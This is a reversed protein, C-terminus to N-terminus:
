GRAIFLQSHWIIDFWRAHLRPTAAGWNEFLYVRRAPCLVNRLVPFANLKLTPSLKWRRGVLCSELLFYLAGWNRKLCWVRRSSQTAHFRRPLPLQYIYIYIAYEHVAVYETYHMIFLRRFLFLFTCKISYMNNNCFSQRRSKRLVRCYFTNRQWWTAPWVSTSIAGGARLWTCRSIGSHAFDGKRGCGTSSPPDGTYQTFENTVRGRWRM